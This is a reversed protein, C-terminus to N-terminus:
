FALTRARASLTAGRQGRPSATQAKLSKVGPFTEFILVEVRDLAEPKACDMEYTASVEAHEEEDKTAKDKADPGKGGAPSGKGAAAPARYPHDITVGRLTCAAAAAPKFLREGAQLKEEMKKLTARQKDTRPAHEFGIVNDLPSEFQLTLKRGDVAVDLTAVGHEHPHEASAVSPLLSALVLLFWVVM